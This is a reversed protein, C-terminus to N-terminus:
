PDERLFGVSAEIATVTGTSSIEVVDGMSPVVPVLSGEGLVKVVTGYVVIPSVYGQPLTVTVLKALDGDSPEAVLTGSSVIEAVSGYPTIPVVFAASWSTISAIAGLSPVEQVLDADWFLDKDFELDLAACIWGETLM